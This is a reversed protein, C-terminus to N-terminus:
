EGVPLGFAKVVAETIETFKPLEVGFITLYQLILAIVIVSTSFVVAKKKAKFLPVLDTFVLVAYLILFIVVEELM